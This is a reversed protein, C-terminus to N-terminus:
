KEVRTISAARVLVAGASGADLALADNPELFVVGGVTLLPAGEVRPQAKGELVVVVQEHGTPPLSVHGDPGVQLYDIELHEAGTDQSVIRRRTVGSGAAAGSPEAPVSPMHRIQVRSPRGAPPKPPSGHSPNREGRYLAGDPPSQFSILVAQRDTTNVTGHVDAVPIWVADGACIPTFREGERVAAGGELVIFCDESHDHRHQPFEQGPGFVSYNLTIQRAGMEPAVVRHSDGKGMRFGLGNSLHLFQM